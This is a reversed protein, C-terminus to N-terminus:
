SGLRQTFVSKEASFTSFMEPYNRLMLLAINRLSWSFGARSCRLMWPNRCTARVHLSNTAQQLYEELRTFKLSVSDGEPLRYSVTPIPRYLVGNARDLVHAFLEYVEGMEMMEWFGNLENLLSRRVVWGDPHGGQRMALLVITKPSLLYVDGRDDVKEGSTLQPLNPFWNDSVVEGNRVAQMNSFFFDANRKRLSEAAVALHDTQLWVDDDDLFAVYEGQAVRIGVNRAAGPGTGLQGAPRARHLKFQSPLERLLSDYQEQFEQDSGDDVIIAEYDQFDQAAISLLAQRLLAVRNRTATVVSIFPKEAM